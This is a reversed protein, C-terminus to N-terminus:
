IAKVVVYRNKGEGLSETKVDPRTGLETHVLRREYANMAPLQVSEKTSVAKRAAARALDTIIVERERRYNNIDVVVPAEGLKKAFMRALYNFNAVVGPLDNMFAPENEVNITIRRLSEDASVVFSSIGMMELTKEIQQKINEM